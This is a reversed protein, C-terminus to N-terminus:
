PRDDVDVPLWRIVVPAAPHSNEVVVDARTKPDVDRRYLEQGPLYRHHYRDAITEPSGLLSADRLIARALSVEPPVDLYVTLDWFHQTEPRQLFVGDFVLVAATPIDALNDGAASDSRVDFTRTRVRDAGGAFPALLEGCLRVYDFSDRYYGVASLAGRRLRVERPHHFGDISARIAVDGLELGLADAMTTKGAADPGDLGILVRGRDAMLSRVAAALAIVLAQQSGDAPVAMGRVGAGVRHRM